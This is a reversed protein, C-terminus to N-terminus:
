GSAWSAGFRVYPKPSDLQPNIGIRGNKMSKKHQSIVSFLMEISMCFRLAVSSIIRIGCITM